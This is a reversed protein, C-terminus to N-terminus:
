TGSAQTAATGSSQGIRAAAPPPEDERRRDVAFLSGPKAKAFSKMESALKSVEAASRFRRRETTAVGISLSMLPVRHLQGRRDKGFYYGARRDADSYQYPVFGDFIELALECVEAARDLPVVLMFDDGGVHGVFADRGACGVAADHLIRAVMRIVRDGEHYGYRDNFEKFHDLDAYCAAFPLDLAIRREIEREIAVSAPLRTTPQAALDRESRRVAAAVRAAAEDADGTAPIVEDAGAELLTTLVHGARDVVVVCPVVATYASDKLAVVAERVGGALEGRADFVLLGPRGRRVEDVVVALADTVSAALGTRAVARAVWPPLTAQAPTYV